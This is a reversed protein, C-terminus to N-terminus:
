RLREKDTGAALNSVTRCNEYRVVLDFGVWFRQRYASQYDFVPPVMSLQGDDAARRPTGGPTAARLEQIFSTLITAIWLSPPFCFTLRRGSLLLLCELSTWGQKFAVLGRGIGSPRRTGASLLPALSFIRRAALYRCEEGAAHLAAAAEQSGYGRRHCLCFHGAPLRPINFIVHLDNAAVGAFLVAGCGEGPQPTRRM